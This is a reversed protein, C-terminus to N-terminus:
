KKGFMSLVLIAGLIIIGIWKGFNKNVEMGRRNGIGFIKKIEEKDM